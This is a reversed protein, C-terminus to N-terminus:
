DDSSRRSSTARNARSTKPKGKVASKIAKELKDMDGSPDKEHQKIFEQLKGKERAEKLTLKPMLILGYKEM